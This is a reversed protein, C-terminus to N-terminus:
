SLRTAVGVRNCLWAGLWNLLWGLLSEPIEDPRDTTVCSALNGLTLALM